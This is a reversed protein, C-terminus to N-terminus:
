ALTAPIALDGSGAEFRDAVDSTLLVVAGVIVVAVIGALFGYRTLNRTNGNLRNNRSARM